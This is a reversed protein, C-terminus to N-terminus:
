PNPCGPGRAIAQGLLDNLAEVIENSCGLYLVIIQGHKYVNPASIWGIHLRPGFQGESDILSADADAQRTNSYEFVKVLDDGVKLDTSGVSLYGNTGASTQGLTTVSLSKARLATALQSSSGIDSTPGSVGSSSCAVTVALSTVQVIAVVVCLLRGHQKSLMDLGMERGGRETSPVVCSCAEVPSAEWVTMGLTVALALIRAM